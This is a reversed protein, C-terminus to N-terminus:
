NLYIKLLEDAQKMISYGNNKLKFMRIYKNPINYSEVEKIKEKWLNANDIRLFIIMNLGLDAESPVNISVISLVGAAQAEILIMGLGECVSPLILVDFCHLIKTVDNREGLFLVNNLAMNKVQQKINEHEPGDGVLIFVYQPCEKMENAIELIFKHNKEKTFRGVHGIVKKGQINLEKKFNSVFSEDGLIYLEPNIANYLTKVKSTDRFYSKAAYESCTLIDTSLFLISFIIYYFIIKNKFSFNRYCNHIHAIRKKIGNRMAAYFVIGSYQLSHVHVIDYKKNRIIKCLSKYYRIIGIQSPKKQLYVTCGLSQMKRVFENSNGHYIIDFNVKTKNIYEYYNQIVHEVGGYSDGSVQLVCIM